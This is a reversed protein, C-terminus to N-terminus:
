SKQIITYIMCMVSNVFLGIFGAVFAFGIGLAIYNYYIM